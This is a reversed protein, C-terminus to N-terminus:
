MEKKKFLFTYIDQRGLQIEFDDMKVFEYGFKFMLSRLASQSFMWVHEDPRFHKWKLVDQNHPLIPISIVLNDGRLAPILSLRYMHELSDFFTTVDYGNESFRLDRLFFPDFSHLDVDSSVRSRVHDMFADAGCGYDLMSRIDEVNDVVFQWRQNQLKRSFETNKYLQYYLLYEANYVDNKTNPCYWLDCKECLFLTEYYIHTITMVDNCIPCIM